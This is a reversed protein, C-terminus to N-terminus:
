QGLLEKAKAVNVKKNKSYAVIFADKIGENILIEKMRSAESYTKYNGVTFITFNNEDTFQSLDQKRALSLWSTVDNVPVQEKYAGIQIKYFLNEIDINENTPPSVVKVQPLEITRNQETKVNQKKLDDAENLSIKRGKHYATVFADKIGLNRIRDKEKNATELDSFIGTTYRIFQYQTQEQYIPNLNYLRSHPVPTKYVGIQVTYLLNETKKIDTATVNPENNINEITNTENIQNNNPTVANKERNKINTSENNALQNYNATKEQAEPRALYVPIRKGDRYAVIFADKYGLTKIETLASSAGEFTQFMGALYKTFASGEIKEAAIPSLGKFSNQNIANKFAGIQVKFIIGSPLEPNLPIPNEKTYLSAPYISYSKNLNTENTTTETNKITNNEYPEIIQTENKKNETNEAILITKNQTTDTAIETTKTTNTDTKEAIYNSTDATEASITKNNITDLKTTNEVINQTTDINTKEITKVTEIPSIDATKHEVINLNNNESNNNNLALQEQEIEKQDINLYLGYANTIENIAQEELKEADSKYENTKEIDDTLLTKERLTKAKKFNAIANKELQSAQQSKQKDTNKRNKSLNDFLVYFKTDNIKETLDSILINSNLIKAETKELEKQTKHKKKPDTETELDSKLFNLQNEFETKAIKENAMLKEDLITEDLQDLEDKTLTIQSIIKSYTANEVNKVNIKTDYNELQDVKILTGTSVFDDPNKNLLTNIAIEQNKLAMKELNYAKELNKRKMTPDPEKKATNKLSNAQTYFYDSGKIYENAINKTKQPITDINTLTALQNKYVNYKLSDAFSLNKYNEALKQNLEKNKKTIEILKQDKNKSYLKNTETKEQENQQLQTNLQDLQKEAKYTIKSHTELDTKESSNLVINGETTQKETIQPNLNSYIDLAQKQKNIAITQLNLADIKEKEALPKGKEEKNKISNAEDLYLNAQNLYNNATIEEKSNGNTKHKDNLKSYFEYEEINIKQQKKDFDNFIKSAETKTTELQKKLNNKEKEDTTEAIQTELKNIETTKEIYQNNLTKTTKKSDNIKAIEANNETIITENKLNYESADAYIQNESINDIENNQLKQKYKNAKAETIALQTTTEIIEKNTAKINKEIDTKAEQSSVNELSKNLALLKTNLNNNKDNYYQKKLLEKKYNEKDTNSAVNEFPFENDTNKTSNSNEALAIIETEKESIKAELLKAENKKIEALKELDASENILITKKDNNPEKEALEQKEKALNKLSDTTENTNNLQKKLEKISNGKDIINENELANNKENNQNNDTLYVNELANAENKQRNAQQQKLNAVFKLNEIEKNLKEIDAKNTTQQKETEKEKILTILSDATNKNEISKERLEAVESNTVKKEETTLIKINTTKNETVEAINQTTSDTKNTETNKIETEAINKNETETKNETVEAINQTTSDTKNTETNKIETEAITENESTKSDQEILNLKKAENQKEALENKQLAELKFSKENITKEFDNTNIESIQATSNDTFNNKLTKITALQTNHINLEIEIEEKSVNLDKFQSNLSINKQELESISKKSNATKNQKLKEIKALNNEVEQKIKSITENTLNLENTNEEIERTKDIIQNDINFYKSKGIELIERNKNILEVSNILDESTSINESLEKTKDADKIKQSAENILLNALNFATISEQDLTEVKKSLENARQKEDDSLNPNSLIEDAQKLIKDAEKNKNYAYILAKNGKNQTKEAEQEIRKVDKKNEDTLEKKSSSDTLKLKEFVYEYDEELAKNKNSNALLNENDGNRDKTDDIEQPTSIFLKSKTKILELDNNEKRIPNKDILIKYVSINDDNTERNSAFYAYIEKKDSIYLYDDYPTNTPFDMNIAESWKNTSSDFVSKFIDFGGMTNHGKSSFYLTKGNPHIYPFDDDYKSNIETPLLIPKGWTGDINKKAFYIDLGNAGNTGYSSYYVYGSDSIFMLQKQETKKDKKTKFEPPKVILKGGYDDLQYSYYYNNKNIHKNEIVTLDSIYQILKKGNTAMRMERDIFYKQNAEKAGIEDNFRKYNYIAKDFDYNLHYAKGYYYYLEASEVDENEAIKLYKLAKEIDKNQEILCAAFYLNYVGNNPYISMLQSFLESAQQFNKLDLNRFAADEVEAEKETLEQSTASLSIILAIFFIFLKSFNSM